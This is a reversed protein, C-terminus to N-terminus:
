PDIRYVGTQVDVVWLKGDPGVEIGYLAEPGFGTDLTRIVKGELDMETIVGTDWDGVFLHGEHLALGGPASFDTSVEGWTVEELKIEVAGPDNTPMERQEVGSAMDVWVVRGNGTDAVYVRNAEHDVVIHGPAEEVRELKPESFRHLVQDFHDDMGIGHDAAFDNRVLTGNDGDFVWYVNESEWAIGVCLPTEHTMDLHSGLGIPDEVGFVELDTTWLVPGMYGNGPMSADDYTNNSEGCSGFQTGGDFAVASTEEMFHLAYGDKRREHDQNGTGPESVIFTRDDSRNAIWLNGDGDFGLDRPDDLKEDAGLIYTFLVSDPSGDGTGILSIDTTPGDKGPEICGILLLALLCRAM